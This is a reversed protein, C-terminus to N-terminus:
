GDREVSTPESRAKYYERLPQQASKDLSPSNLTAACVRILSELSFSVLKLLHRLEARRFIGLDSPSKLPHGPEAAGWSFLTGYLTGHAIESAHRYLLLGFALGRTIEAGFTLYVAELRQQVNENTWSTIERGSKSTFEELWRMNTPERMLEDANRNKFEFLPTGAIEIKRVLNRLTKQKAHVQARVSLKAPDTLLFCSNIATEYIVRAIVYSDRLAQHSVLIRLSSASEQIADLFPYLVGVQDPDTATAVRSIVDALLEITQDFFRWEPWEQVPLDSEPNKGMAISIKM